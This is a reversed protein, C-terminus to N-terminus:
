IQLYKKWNVYTDNYENLFKINPQYTKIIKLNKFSTSFDKFYGIGIASGTAAGQSGDTNYIEIKTNCINAFTDCFIESLFLNANSVRIVNPKVNIHEMIELGYKFACAIGEQVAKIFHNKTHINFNLGFINANIDKNNFIREAGNGFPHIVLGDSGIKINKCNQNMEDYSFQNNLLQNKLWSNLIGCGNICLLIGYKPDSIQSNVHSFTNVRMQDDFVPKDFVGYVVGSTGATAAFEGSKLVNLSFANNPQDGARYSIPTGEKIGIEKSAKNSLRGQDEFTNVIEPILNTSLNFYDFLEKALSQNKFNWFIGESLGSITTNIKGTLKYAIYDGPLMVYKIKAYINPKNEQIWKLKSITFNGPSNLYNNLCHEKGLDNLAREGIEVSRSDCWIISPHLIENDNGIIVLGHMQYSIGISVIEDNNNFNSLISKSAKILNKWWIEPNQEAWGNQKATIPMEKKPFFDSKEIKSNELNLLSAKVSSSGIDFGISFRKKPM